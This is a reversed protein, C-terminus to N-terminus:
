NFKLSVSYNRKPGPEYYRGGYANLRLNSDYSNNFCNNVRITLGIKVKQFTITRGLILDILYFRNTEVSNIDDLYFRESFHCEISASIKNSNNWKIDFFGFFPPILPLSNGNLNSDGIKYRIFKFNSFSNVFNISLNKSLFKSISIEAGNRHTEGINRYYSRGPENEIEYPIIENKLESTFLVIEFIDLKNINYNFGFELSKSIQPKLNINTPSTNVILINNGIEGLTPTDFHTSYNGFFKFNENPKYNIGLIPSFSRYAENFNSIKNEFNDLKILSQDYRLGSFLIIKKMLIKLQFFTGYNLYSEMANYTLSGRIGLINDFRRRQDKQNNLEFGLLFNYDFNGLKSSYLYKSTIGMYNRNLKVQGGSLFPLKNQFDRNAIWINQKSIINNKFKKNSKISLKTQMVSERSDYLINEDRASLPNQSKQNKNLSGPDLAYPNDLHNLHISFIGLKKSNITIKSNFINSLMSSHNRFGIFNQRTVSFNWNIFKYTRNIFFSLVKSRHSDIMLKYNMTNERNPTISIFNIAGGSANGFLPSASGRYIKINKLYNLDINDLQAQGDPTSEPTDDFLIKIGRIGFPSRLGNGRISIRPDQSFNFESLTYIGPIKRITKNISISSSTNKINKKDIKSNSFLYKSEKKEGTVNIPDFFYDISDTLAGLKSFGIGNFILFLFYLIKIVM